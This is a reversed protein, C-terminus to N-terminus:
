MWFCQQNQQGGIGERLRHQAALPWPSCRAKKMSTYVETGERPEWVRAGDSEINRKEVEISM